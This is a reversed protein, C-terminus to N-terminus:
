IDKYIDINSRYNKHWGPINKIPAFVIKIPNSTYSNGHAVEDQNLKQAM